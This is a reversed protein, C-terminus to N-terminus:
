YVNKDKDKRDGRNEYEIYNDNFAGKTNVPKYYYENIKGFLKEADRIGEYDPDDCNYDKKLRNLIEGLKKFINNMKRKNKM